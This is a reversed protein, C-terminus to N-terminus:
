NNENVGRLEIVNIGYKFKELAETRTATMELQLNSKVERTARDSELKELESSKDNLKRAIGKLATSPKAPQFKDKFMSSSPSDENIKVVATAANKANSITELEAASLQGTLLLCIIVGTGVQTILDYAQSLPIKCWMDGPSMFEAQCSVFDTESFMQKQLLLLLKRSDIEGDSVLEKILKEALSINEFLKGVALSNIDGEKLIKNSFYLHDGDTFFPYILHFIKVKHKSLNTVTQQGRTARRITHPLNKGNIMPGWIVRKRFKYRLVPGKPIEDNARPLEIPSHDVFAESESCVGINYGDTENKTVIIDGAQIDYAFRKIQALLNLGRRNLKKTERETKNDVVFDYYDKNKLLASRLKGESPVESGLRNGLIKELHNIAIVGGTRFNRAYIGSSARIFWIKQDKNLYAVKIGTDAM